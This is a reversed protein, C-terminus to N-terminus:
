RYIERFKGSLYDIFPHIQINGGTVHEALETLTYRAGHRHVHGRLWSLTTALNGSEIDAPISPIDEVAKRYLQASLLNGITYTPFYGISGHAWHIDQLSGLADDPPTIGLYDSYKGAWASPIDDVPLSGDILLQEIEYRIFIHLNYTLEDSEVRIFGPRVTNAARYFVDLDVGDLQAPFIKKLVPLYHNWFGRSRGIINEWFRSQSEHVGLSIPQCLPTDILELPLGQDYLAHGGEHITSFLASLPDNEDFRTTIRVDYPTFSTTFPHASRDQRGRRFDYGMDRLVKLGFAEQGAIDFKQGPFEPSTHSAHGSIERVLPLLEKKMRGFLDDVQATTLGPEYLDLLADYPHAQYGLLEAEERCIGVIDALIPAFMGFDSKKRAEIWISNAQAATRALRAVLSEPLKVRQEYLRRAVRLMSVADSFYEGGSSEEEAEEILRRTEDSVLWRHSIESLLSLQEARARVGEEPMFTEMDWGLVAAAQDIRSIRSWQKIFKDLKEPM